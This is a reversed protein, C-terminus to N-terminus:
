PLTTLSRGAWAQWDRGHPIVIRNLARALDDPSLAVDRIARLVHARFEDRPIRDTWFFGLPPQLDAHAAHMRMALRVAEGRPMNMDVLVLDPKLIPLLDLAQRTDFAMSIGRQVQALSDRLANMTEFAEGVVLLRHPRATGSLLRRVCADVEFPPPFFRVMGLVAGRGGDACYTFAAPEHIGWETCRAIEGLPDLRSLALNAVLLRRAGAAEALPEGFRHYNVRWKSALDKIAQQIEDHEELHILCASAASPVNSRPAPQTALPVDSATSPGAADCTDAVPVLTPPSMDSGASPGPKHQAIQVDGPSSLPKPRELKRLRLDVARFAQRLVPMHSALDEHQQRLGEIDTRLARLDEERQRLLQVLEQLYTAQSALIIQNGDLKPRDGYASVDSDMEPPVLDASIAEQLRTNAQARPATCAGNDALAKAVRRRLEDLTAEVVALRTELEENPVPEM